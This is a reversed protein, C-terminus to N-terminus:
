QGAANALEIWTRARLDRLFAQSYPTTKIRDALEQAQRALDLMWVPDRDRAERSHQLLAEVRDWLPISRIQSERREEGAKRRRELRRLKRITRDVAKLYSAEDLASPAAGRRLVAFIRAGCERCGPEAMLHRVLRRRDESPLTGSLLEEIEQDTVHAV